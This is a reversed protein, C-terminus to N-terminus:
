RRAVLEPYDRKSPRDINRMYNVVVKYFSARLHHVCRDKLTRM